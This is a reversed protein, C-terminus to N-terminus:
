VTKEGKDNEVLKEAGNEILIKVIEPNNRKAAWHLATWKNIRHQSNVDAVGAQLSEANIKFSNFQFTNLTIMRNIFDCQGKTVLDWILLQM